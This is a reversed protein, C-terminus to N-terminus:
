VSSTTGIRVDVKRDAAGVKNKRIKGDSWLNNINFGDSIWSIGDRTSFRSFRSHLDERCKLEWILKGVTKKMNLRLLCSVEDVITASLDTPSFCGGLEIEGRGV